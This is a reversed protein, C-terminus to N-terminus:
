MGKTTIKFDAKDTGGSPVDFEKESKANWEAPIPDINAQLPTGDPAGDPSGGNPKQGVVNNGRTMIRVRHKGIVAGDDGDDSTLVFRGDKDTYASSGRGPNPNEATGIPQFSVVAQGYPQGDVTVVGSVPAYGSTNCGIFLLVFFPVSRTLM